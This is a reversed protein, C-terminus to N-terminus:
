KGMVSKARSINQSVSSQDVGRIGAQEEQTRGGIEVKVYDLVEAPACGAEQLADIYHSEGIVSDDIKLQLRYNSPLLDRDRLYRLVESLATDHESIWEDRDIDCSSKITDKFHYLYHQEEYIWDTGLRLFQDTDDLWKAQAVVEECAYEVEENVADWNSKVAEYIEIETELRETDLNWDEEAQQQRENLATKVEDWEGVTTPPEGTLNGVERIGYWADGIHDNTSISAKVWLGSEPILWIGYSIVDRSIKVAKEWNDPITWRKEGSVVWKREAPERKITDHHREGDNLITIHEGSGEVHYSFASEGCINRDRVVRVGDPLNRKNTAIPHDYDTAGGHNPQQTSTMAEM